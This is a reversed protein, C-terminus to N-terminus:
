NQFIKVVKLTYWIIYWDLYFQINVEFIYVKKMVKFTAGQINGQINPWLYWIQGKFHQLEHFISFLWLFIYMKSILM